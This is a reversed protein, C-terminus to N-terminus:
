EVNITLKLDDGELHIIRVACDNAPNEYIPLNWFMGRRRHQGRHPFSEIETTLEPIQRQNVLNRLHHLAGRGDRGGFGHVASTTWQKLVDSQIWIPHTDPNAGMNTLRHKFYKIIAEADDADGDSMVRREQTKKWVAEMANLDGCATALVDYEWDPFRSNPTYDYQPGAKLKAVINSLLQLRSAKLFSVLRSKWQYKTSEDEVPKIFIFMARSILDRSLTASNATLTTILDNRRSEDGKGYPSMGSIYPTTLLSSLTSSGFFGQVNDILICRKTRGSSSLLRKTVTSNNAADAFERQPIDVLAGSDDDVGGSLMALTHPITSKGVGQAKKTDIVFLPTNSHFRYYVSTMFYAKLLIRDEPTEAHFFDLFQDLLDDNHEAPPLEGHALFMDNGDPWLPTMSIGAYRISNHQLSSLLEGASMAGGIDAMDVVQNSKEAIWATLDAPRYIYRIRGTDRDMDFLTNSLLRPFGLFRTRIDEVMDRVKRPVRIDKPQGKADTAKAWAYNRFPEANAAKAEALIGEMPNGETETEASKKALALLEDKTHGGSIWDTVDGKEGLGALHIIKVSKAVAKVAAAIKAAHSRGPADNDPLIIVEKGTLMQTYEDRWKDSGMPATTAPLGLEALTDADKEGEVVFIMPKDTWEPLRYLVTDIGDLSYIWEGPRHYDPRRQAFNKPKYRITQHITIGNLDVYDYIKDIVLAAKAKVPDLNLWRGLADQAEWASGNHKARAALDVIWGGEKAVHDYWSEKTVAFAGSDSGPRWPCHFMTTDASTKVPQAGLIETMYRRCDGSARIQDYNYASM